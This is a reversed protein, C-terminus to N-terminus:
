TKVKLVIVRLITDLCIVTGGSTGFGSFFTYVCMYIFTYVYIHTNVYVDM